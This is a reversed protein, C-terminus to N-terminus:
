EGHCLDKASRKNEECVPQEAKVIGKEPSFEGKCASKQFWAQAQDEKPKQELWPLNQVCLHVKQEKM